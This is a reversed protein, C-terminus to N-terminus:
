KLTSSDIGKGFTLTILRSLNISSIYSLQGSLGLYRDCKLFQNNLREAKDNLPKKQGRIM